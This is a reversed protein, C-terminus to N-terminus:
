PLASRPSKSKDNFFSTDDYNDSFGGDNSKSDDLTNKM